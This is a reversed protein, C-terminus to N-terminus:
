FDSDALEYPKGDIIEEAIMGIIIGSNYSPIPPSPVGM